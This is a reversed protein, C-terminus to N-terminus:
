QSVGPLPHSEGLIARSTDLTTAKPEPLKFFAWWLTALLLIKVMLIMGLHRILPQQYWALTTSDEM